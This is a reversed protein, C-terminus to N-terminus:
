TSLYIERERMIRANHEDMRKQVAIKERAEKRAYFGVSKEYAKMTAAVGDYIANWDTDDEIHLRLEKSRKHTIYNYGVMLYKHTISNINGGKNAVQIPHNYDQNCSYDTQRIIDSHVTIGSEDINLNIPYKNKWIGIVLKDYIQISNEELRNIPSFALDPCTNIELLKAVIINAAQIKTSVLGQRYDILIDHLVTM